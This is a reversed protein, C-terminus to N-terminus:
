WNYTEADIQSQALSDSSHVLRHYLSLYKPLLKVIYTNIFGFAIIDRRHDPGEAMPKHSTGLYM